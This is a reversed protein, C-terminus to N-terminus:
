KNTEKLNKAMFITKAIETQGNLTTSNKWWKNQYHHSSNWPNRNVQRTKSLYKSNEYLKICECVCVYTSFDSLCHMGGHCTDGSQLSLCIWACPFHAVFMGMLYFSSFTEKERGANFRGVGAPAFAFANQASRRRM